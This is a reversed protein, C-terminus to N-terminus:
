PLIGLIVAGVYVIWLFGAGILSYMSLNVLRMGLRQREEDSLRFM